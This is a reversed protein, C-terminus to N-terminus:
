TRWSTCRATKSFCITRDRCCCFYRVGGGAWPPRPWICFAARQDSRLPPQFEICILSLLHAIGRILRLRLGLRAIEFIRLPKGANPVASIKFNSRSSQDRNRVRSPNCCFAPTGFACSRRRTRLFQGVVREVGSTLCTDRLMPGHETDIVVTRANLRALDALSNLMEWVSPRWYAKADALERRGPCHDAPLQQLPAPTPLIKTVVRLLRISSRGSRSPVVVTILLVGASLGTPVSPLFRIRGSAALPLCHGLGLRPSYQLRLTPAHRAICRSTKVM